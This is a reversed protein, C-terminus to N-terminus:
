AWRSLERPKRNSIRERVAEAFEPELTPPADCAVELEQFAAIVQSLLRTKPGPPAIVAVPRSEKEIVFTEGAQIRSLVAEFDRAAEDASIRITAM